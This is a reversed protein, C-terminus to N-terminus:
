EVLEVRIVSIIRALAQEVVRTEPHRVIVYGDGEYGAGHMQGPRPLRSEVVLPAVEHAEELGHVAKVRGSGQGRLYAAGVAHRREAPEFADFVVVKAWARYLDLDHAYSILTSFQAGPPRAAVESVAISGDGRRFWEMHTLGTTMGLAALARPGERHIAAFEPGSVDRPLVVCWQIWPHRLVELPTPDYRSISSWLTRGGITVSDFSHEQGTIFEELLAEQGPRPPAAALWEELQAANGVRFTNRAGAGAPPKVVLPYGIEAAFARCEAHGGCLRHRACPVGAARLVDKMRSKDRFNHAAELPLGPIGLHERVEALPVQLEELTGILREPPGLHAGIRRVGDALQRPDLSDEVRLHAAVTGRLAAPLKEDPEHSILAFRVGDLRAAAAVFRMTTEVFYPAVFVVNRM